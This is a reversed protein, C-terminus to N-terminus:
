SFASEDEFWINANKRSIRPKVRRSPVDSLVAQLTKVSKLTATGDYLDGDIKVGHKPRLGKRQDDKSYALRSLLEAMGNEKAHQDLDGEVREVRRCNAIRSAISAVQMKSRLWDEFEKQRM